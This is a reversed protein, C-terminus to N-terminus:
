HWVSLKQFCIAGHATLAYRMEAAAADAPPLALDIGEIVAGPAGSAPNIDPRHNRM